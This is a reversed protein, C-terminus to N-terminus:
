LTYIINTLKTLSYTLAKFINPNNSLSIHSHPKTKSKIPNHFYSKKVVTNSSCFERGALIRKQRLRYMKFDRFNELCYDEM